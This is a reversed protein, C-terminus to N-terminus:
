FIKNRKRKFETFCVLVQTFLYIYEKTKLKTGTYNGIM